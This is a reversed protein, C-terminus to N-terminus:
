TRCNLEQATHWGCPTTIELRNHRPHNRYLACCKERWPTLIDGWLLASSLFTWPASSKDRGKAWLIISLGYTLMYPLRCGTVPVGWADLICSKNEAMTGSAFCVITTTFSICFPHQMNWVEAAIAGSHNQVATSCRPARIVVATRCSQSCGRSSGSAWYQHFHFFWTKIAETQLHDWEWSPLLLYAADLFPDTGTLAGTGRRRGHLGEISFHFNDLVTLAGKWLCWVCVLRWIKFHDYTCDNHQNYM